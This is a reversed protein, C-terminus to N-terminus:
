RRPETLYGGFGTGGAAARPNYMGFYKTLTDRMDNCEARVNEDAIWMAGFGADGTQYFYISYEPTYFDPLAHRPLKAVADRFAQVRAKEEDTKAIFEDFKHPLNVAARLRDYEKESAENVAALKEYEDTSLKPAFRFVYRVNREGADVPKAGEPSNPPLYVFATPKDRRLTIDNGTVTVTWNDRALKKVRAVWKDADAMPLKWDAAPEAAFAGMGFLLVAGVLMVNRM